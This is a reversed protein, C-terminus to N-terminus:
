HSRGKDATRDETQYLIYLRVGCPTRPNFNQPDSARRPNEADCGALPAHISIIVRANINPALNPRVGCPTRPNFYRRTARAPLLETDCGALPAHISIGTMTAPFTTIRTAGRLPHTSQFSRRSTSWRWSKHRVGCPTRPNFHGCRRQRTHARGDCGALPAHISIDDIERVPRRSCLRVGCPTRPNFHRGCVRHADAALDCGALPAHISIQVTRIPVQEEDTAGRLPHTSQFAPSSPASITARPRVGCPTRPNFNFVPPSFRVNEPRVGCPTRPNFDQRLNRSVSFEADCGALPAHISIAEVERFREDIPTAGRLPHTSQFASSLSNLVIIFVDCGALPAHISIYANRVASCLFVLRVGCPTRPNFYVGLYQRTGKRYDCGALPAHISIEATSADSVLM